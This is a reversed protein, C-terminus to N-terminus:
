VMPPSKMLTRESHLTPSASRSCTIRQITEIGQFFHEEIPDWTLHFFVYGFAGVLQKQVIPLLWMGITPGRFSWVTAAPADAFRSAKESVFSAGSILASMRDECGIGATTQFRAHNSKVDSSVSTYIYINYVTYSKSRHQPNSRFGFLRVPKGSIPLYHYIFLM